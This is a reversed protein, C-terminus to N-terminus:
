CAPSSAPSAASVPTRFPKPLDDALPELLASVLPKRRLINVGLAPTKSASLAGNAAARDVGTPAAATATAPTKAAANAAAAIV